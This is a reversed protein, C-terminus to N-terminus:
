GSAPSDPGNTPLGAAGAEPTPATTDRIPPSDPGRDSVLGQARRFFQAVIDDAGNIRMVERVVEIAQPVSMLELDDEALEGKVSAKLWKQATEYLTEMDEPTLERGMDATAWTLFFAPLEKTFEVWERPRLARLRYTNDGVRVQGSAVPPSSLALREEIAKLRHLVEDLASLM